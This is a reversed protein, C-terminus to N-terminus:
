QENGIRDAEEVTKKAIKYLEVSNLFLDEKEQITAQATINELKKIIIKADIILKSIM